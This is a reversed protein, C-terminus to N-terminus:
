SSDTHNKLFPPRWSALRFVFPLFLACGLMRAVILARAQENQNFLDLLAISLPSRSQELISEGHKPGKLPSIVVSACM